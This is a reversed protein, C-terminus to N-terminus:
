KSNNILLILDLAETFYRKDCFDKVQYLNNKNEQSLDKRLELEKVQDSILKILASDKEPNDGLEVGLSKVEEERGELKKVIAVTEKIKTSDTEDALSKAAASVSAKYENLAPTIKLSDKEQAAKTLDNMQQSAKDLNFKVKEEGTMFAMQGQEVAKSISSLMETPNSKLSFGFTGIVVFLVIAGAFAYQNGFVMKIAQWLKVSGVFFLERNGEKSLIQSKAFVVWDKNPKITKLTQLKQILDQETM